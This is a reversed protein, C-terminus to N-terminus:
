ENTKRRLSVVGEQVLRWKSFATSLEKPFPSAVKCCSRPDLLKHDLM